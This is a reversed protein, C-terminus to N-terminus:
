GVAVEKHGGVRELGTKLPSDLLLALFTLSAAEGLAKIQAAGPRSRGGGGCQRPAHTQRAVKSHLAVALCRSEIPARRRGLPRKVTSPPM